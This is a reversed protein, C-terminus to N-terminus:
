WIRSIEKTLRFSQYLSRREKQVPYKMGHQLETPNFMMYGCNKRYPVSYWNGDFCYTGTREDDDNLYVQINVFLNPSHDVHIKNVYGPFDLWLQPTNQYLTGLRSEAEAVVTALATHVFKTLHGVGQELRIATQQPRACWNSTNDFEQNLMTLTDQDLVNTLQYFNNTIKVFM